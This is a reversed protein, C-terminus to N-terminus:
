SVDSVYLFLNSALIVWELTLMTPLQVLTVHEHLYLMDWPNLTAEM